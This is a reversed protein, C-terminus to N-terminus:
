KAGVTRRGATPRRRHGAPRTTATSSPMRQPRTADISAVLETLRALRDALETRQAPTRDVLEALRAAVLDRENKAVSARTNALVGMRAYIGLDLLRVLLEQRDKPTNHLFKAFEGQPLVVCTTFHEYTLGLLETM